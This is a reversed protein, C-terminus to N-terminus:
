AYERAIRSAASIVEDRQRIGRAFDAIMGALSDRQARLEGLAARVSHTEPLLIGAEIAAATIEDEGPTDDPRTASFRDFLMSALDDAATEEDRWVFSVGDDDDHELRLTACWERM